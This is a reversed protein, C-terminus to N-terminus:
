HNINRWEAALKKDYKELLLFNRFYHYLFSPYCILKKFLLGLWDMKHLSYSESRWVSLYRQYEFMGDEELRSKVWLKFDKYTCEGADIPDLFYNKRLYCSIISMTSYLLQDCGNKASIQKAHRRIRVLPKRICGIQGVESLRLWLDWDQSRKIRGRYGGISRVIKTSYFASSHPPFKRSAYLNKVLLNNKSPYLYTKLENGNEDIEVQGSGIFVLDTNVRAMDLQLELREPECIDDADIRAIWEGRAKQIGVNLSDALGTNDKKIVVIRADGKAFRSIIKSSNDTSGDNVIIFEFDEITQNLVSNIADELWSGSNYCSLLVSITPCSRKRVSVPKGM